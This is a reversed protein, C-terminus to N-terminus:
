REGGKLTKEREETLNELNWILNDSLMEIATHLAGISSKFEIEVNCDSDVVAGQLVRDIGKIAVACKYCEELRTATSDFRSCDSLLRTTSSM